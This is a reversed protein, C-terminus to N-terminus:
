DNVIEDDNKFFNLPSVFSSTVCKLNIKKGRWEVIRKYNLAQEPRVLIGDNISQQKKRENDTVSFSLRMDNTSAENSVQV